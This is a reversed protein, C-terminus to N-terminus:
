NPEGAIQIEVKKGWDKSYVGDSVFEKFSSYPYDIPNSMIGNKVPNYHIYDTHNSLDEDGRITHEWFRPQWITRKDNSIENILHQKVLKISYSYNGQKVLVNSHDPLFVYAILNGACDKLTQTWTQLQLKMHHNSDFYPHRDKTVYTLFYVANPNDTQIHRYKVM